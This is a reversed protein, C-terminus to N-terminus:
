LVSNEARRGGDDEVNPHILERFDESLFFRVRREVEVTQSDITLKLGM